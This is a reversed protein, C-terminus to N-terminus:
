SFFFVAPTQDPGQAATKRLEDVAIIIDKENVEVDTVDNEDFHNFTKGINEHERYQILWCKECRRLLMTM